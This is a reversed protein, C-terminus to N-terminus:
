IKIAQKIDVTITNSNKSVGIIQCFGSIPHTLSLNNGNLYVVNGTGFSWSPNTIDGSTVVEGSFGALITAKSVGICKDMEMVNSSDSETGNGNVAKFATINNIAVIETIVANSQTSGSGGGSGSDLTTEIYTGDPNFEIESASLATGVIRVFVGETDPIDSYLSIAGNTGVYYNEGISLGSFGIRNGTALAWGVENIALSASSVLRLQTSCKEETLNDAKYWKTDPALYVLDNYVLSEGAVIEDQESGVVEWYAYGVSSYVCRYLIQNYVYLSGESYGHNLNDTDNPIHTGKLNIRPLDQIM